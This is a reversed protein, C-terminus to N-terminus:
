YFWPTALKNFTLNWSRIECAYSNSQLDNAVFLIIHKLGTEFFHVCLSIRFSRFTSNSDLRQPALSVDLPLQVVLLPIVDAMVSFLSSGSNQWKSAAVLLKVRVSIVDAVVSALQWLFPPAVSACLQWGTVDYSVFWSTLRFSKGRATSACWHIAAV